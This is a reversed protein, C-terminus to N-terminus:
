DALVGSKEKASKQVAAFVKTPLGFIDIFGKAAGHDFKDAKDYTALDYSYLTVPSKRGVCQATGKFLKIRVEGTVTEQSKKIFADMAEKLPHFWLGFYVMEAYKQEMGLKYHHLERPLTITELEKHALTLVHAAPMEYVERSKIGVLRNEVHDIRGVGHAAAIKHVTEILTVLDMAVGNVTVPVGQEFGIELYEPEDPADKPNVTWEFAEEPAEAWPDELVGAECSRGWLNVDLSFPNEKGVPVPIGHKMAYDIEEERSWAWERVPAIVKLNPNLAAVSVEFRVQDNGKGTCGHAVFDAGEKEAVEVLLKSILPRSLSASLYYKSEYIANAQLTPLIFNYAFDAKADYIYSAVAGIQLAKEKIFNLDKDNAGVDASMAIVDADYHEKIWHIAVSTDLGGSYALVCKKKAM